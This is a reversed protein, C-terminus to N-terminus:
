ICDGGAAVDSHRRWRQLHLRAPRATRGNDLLSPTWVNAYVAPLAGRARAFLRVEPAGLAQCLRQVNFDSACVVPRRRGLSRVARNLSAHAWAARCPPAALYHVCRCRRTAAAAGAPETEGAAQWRVRGGVGCPPARASRARSARLQGHAPRGFVGRCREGSAGAASCYGTGGASGAFAWANALPVDSVMCVFTRVRARVCVCLSICLCLCVHM